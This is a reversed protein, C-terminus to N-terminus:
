VDGWPTLGRRRRDMAKFEAWLYGGQRRACERAGQKIQLASSRWTRFVRTRAPPKPARRIPRTVSFDDGLDKDKGIVAGAMAALVAAALSARNLSFSM